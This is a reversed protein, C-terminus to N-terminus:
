KLNKAFDAIVSGVFKLVCESVDFSGEVTNGNRKVEGSFTAECNAAAEIALKRIQAMEKDRQKIRNQEDKSLKEDIKQAEPRVIDLLEVVRGAHATFFFVRPDVMEPAAQAAQKIAAELAEVANTGAAGWVADKSTAVYMLTEGPFLKQFAAKRREPVAISHLSVDDGIKQIDLKVERGVNVSPLLKVIEDAKKGDAARVGCVLTHKGDGAPHLDLFLDVTGLVLGENLMDILTGAAAKAAKKQEADKLTGRKDIQSEVVPRVTTYFAKLHGARLPDIAFNTKGSVVGKPNLTVNAFYSPKEALLATSKFLDTDPLATIHFDARGKGPTEKAAVFTLGAIAM